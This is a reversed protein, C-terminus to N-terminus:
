GSSGYAKRLAALFDRANVYGFLRGREEGQPGLFVLTPVGVVRFRERLAKEEQDEDTLDVKILFLGSLEKQVRADRFTTASLEKCPICWDASFYLLVLDGRELAQSLTNPAYPTWPLEPTSSAPRVQSIGLALAIGAIAVSLVAVGRSQRRLGSALLFLGGGIALVAIAMRLATNPLLPSLFYLAMGLLFFGLVHEVWVTWPGPKPLARLKGSLLALGVYPLGLGLSLAFFLLFGRLPDGLSAVYSIFAVTAPGVCPAAVLGVVAGMLFSGLIGASQARPLRRLLAAPAHMTYVGFFSLSLAVMVAALFILVAPHQLAMGLLGGGLAALSGLASYTLAIGGLYSLALALIRRLRQGGTKTFFAVTVPVMPYVCPTLNLGLGVLFAAGLAWLFSRAWPGHTGPSAPPAISKAEGPVVEVPFEFDVSAPPVCVEDNCAQYHLKGRVPYTAPTVEAGVRIRLVVEILDEYLELPLPSIRLKRTQPAPWREEVTFGPPLSLELKTPILFTQSPAHANIHWGPLIDVRLLVQTEGGPHVTGQPVPEVRVLQSPTQAWAWSALLVLALVQWM